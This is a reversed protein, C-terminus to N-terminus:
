LNGISKEYGFLNFDQEYLEVVKGVVEPTYYDKFRTKDTKNEHRLELGKIGIKECVRAFDERINEFKGLFDPKEPIFTYQPRFHIDMDAEPIKSIVDVFQEFSMNRHLKPDEQINQLAGRQIVHRFCSALRDFPNRVFAFKFFSGDYDEIQVVDDIQRFSILLSTSAVKPVRFYIAKHKKFYFILTKIGRHPFTM